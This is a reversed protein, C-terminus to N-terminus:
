LPRLGQQLALLHRLAIYSRMLSISLLLSYSVNLPQTVGSTHSPLRLGRRKRESLTKLARFSMHSRYGDYVLLVKRGNATLYSVCEVFQKCWSVFLVSDIGGREPKTGILSEPPLASAVNETVVTGDEQELTRYPITTGKFILSPACLVRQCERMGHTDGSLARRSFEVARRDCRTGSAM